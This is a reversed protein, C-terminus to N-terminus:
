KGLHREAFDDNARWATPFRGVAVAFVLKESREISRYGNHVEVRRVVVDQVRGRDVDRGQDGEFIDHVRVAEARIPPHQVAHLIEVLVEVPQILLKFGQSLICINDKIEGTLDLEARVM